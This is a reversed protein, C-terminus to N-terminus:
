RIEVVRNLEPAGFSSGVVTTVTLNGFGNEELIKVIARARESALMKNREPTGTASDASGTVRLIFGKDRDTQSAIWNKLKEMETVSLESKNIDFYIYLPATVNDGEAIIPSLIYIVETNREKLIANEDKLASNELAYKENSKRLGEYEEVTFPLREPAVSSYRDFNRKRSLNFSLGASVYPSFAPRPAKDVLRDARSVITGTKLHFDVIEGLRIDHLIGVGAMIQHTDIKKDDQRHTVTILSGASFYPIVDWYRTEKYGSVANSFNFLIDGHFQHFGYLGNVDGLAPVNAPVKVQNQFGAYGFELGLTPTIWRGVSAEVMPSIEMGEVYKGVFTIAGGGVNLFWNSWGGNTLYPGRVVFGNADRNGNEQAYAGISILMVSLAALFMKLKKM